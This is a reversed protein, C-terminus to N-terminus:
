QRKVRADELETATDLDDLVGPDDVELDLVGFRALVDRASEELSAGALAEAVERTVSVPHGSKEGLKPRVARASGTAEILRAVTSPLVRPHDILSFVVVDPAHAIAARMGVSLSSLMGLEPERNTAVEVDRLVPLIAEAHPPALVVIVSNAGAERLTRVARLVLPEGDIHGLAKVFTARESCGGALVVGVISRSGM